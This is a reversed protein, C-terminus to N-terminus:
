RKLKERFVERLKAVKPTIVVQCYPQRQNRAYYEQHYDEAPYFNTFPTVETVIPGSWIRKETIEKIVKEAEEKQQPSHTFIASRYQTGTDAGQRNLTTPDHTTFFIVLLDHYSVVKPDFTVQIAEAHGTSGSCVQEYTPKVTKGGSYGSVVKEVGKIENFIAETCWFCGGAVTLIEKGPPVTVPTEMVKESREGGDGARVTKQSECGALWFLLCVLGAALPLIHRLRSSSIPVDTKPVACRPFVSKMM